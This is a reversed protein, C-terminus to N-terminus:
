DENPRNVIAEEAGEDVDPVKVLAPNAAKYKEVREILLEIGLIQRQNAGLKIAERKYADLVNRNFASDGARFFVGDEETYNHGHACCTALIRFKRDIDM